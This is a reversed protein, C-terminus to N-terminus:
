VNLEFNDIYYVAGHWQQETAGKRGAVILRNDNIIMTSITSLEDPAKIEKWSYGNDVSVYLKSVSDIHNNCFCLGGAFIKGNYEIMMNISVDEPIGSVVKWTTQNTINNTM